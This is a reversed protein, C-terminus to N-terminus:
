QIEESVASDKDSGTDMQRNPNVFAVLFTWDWMSQDPRIGGVAEELVRMKIIDDKQVRPVQTISLSKGQRVVNIELRMIEQRFATSNKLYNNSPSYGTGPAFNSQPQMPSVPMGPQMYPTPSVIPRPSSMVTQARTNILGASCVIFALAASLLLFSDALKKTFLGNLGQNSGSM